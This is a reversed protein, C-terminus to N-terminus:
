IGVWFYRIKIYYFRTEEEHSMLVEPYLTSVICFFHCNYKNSYRFFLAENEAIMLSNNSLLM